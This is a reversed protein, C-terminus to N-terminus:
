ATEVKRLLKFYTEVEGWTIFEQGRPDIKINEVMEDEIFRIVQKVNIHKDLVGIYFVNRDLITRAM